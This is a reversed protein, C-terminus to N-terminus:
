GCPTPQSLDGKASDAKPTSLRNKAPSEGKDPAPMTPLRISGEVQNGFVDWGPRRRRAFMELYRKHPYLKEVKTYQEDPKRSHERVPAYILAQIARNQPKAVKGRTALLCLEANARTYYGLGTFFGFGSPKAKVWVWAVTKYEFGWASMVQFAEPLMPFIAWLFLVANDAVPIRLNCIDQTTMTQYHKDPSRGDKGTNQSWVEFRWPPDALIVDYLSEM